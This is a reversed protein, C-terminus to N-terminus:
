DVERVSEPLEVVKPLRVGQSKNIMFFKTHATAM